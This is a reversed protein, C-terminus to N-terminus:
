AINFKEIQDEVSKTTESEVFSTHSSNMGRSSHGRSGEEKKRKENYMNYSNILKRELFM